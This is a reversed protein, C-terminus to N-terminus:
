RKTLDQQEEVFSILHEMSLPCPTALETFRFSEKVLRRLALTFFATSLYEDLVLSSRVRSFLLVIAGVTIIMEAVASGKGELLLPSPGLNPFWSPVKTGPQNEAWKRKDGTPATTIEHWRSEEPTSDFLGKVLVLRGGMMGM